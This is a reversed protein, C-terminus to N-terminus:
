RASYVRAFSNDFLVKYSINLNKEYLNFEECAKHVAFIEPLNDISMRLIDGNYHNVDFFCRYWYYYDDDTILPVHHNNQELYYMLEWYDEDDFITERPNKLYSGIASYLPFEVVTNQILGKELFINELPTFTFTLLFLLFACYAYIWSYSEQLLIDVSDSIVLWVLAWLIFYFKYYYYPSLIDLLCLICSIIIFGFYVTLLFLNLQFEKKKMYYSGIYFILPLFYVYDRYFEKHIGGDHALFKIFISFDRFYLYLFGLVLIGGVICSLSLLTFVKKNFKFTLITNSSIKLYCLLYLALAYPVFLVYCICLCYIIGLFLILFNKRKTPYDQYLYLMYIGFLFLTVGMGWYVFGGLLYEYIPWGVFYLIVLVPSIYHFLKSRKKYSILIYFIMGCLFHSITEAVIMSKYSNIGSFIPSLLQIIISNNLSSFYMTNLKGTRIISVAFEFHHAIDTNFYSLKIDTSFVRLFVVLMFILLIIFNAIDFKDLHYLQYEKHKIYYIFLIITIINCLLSVTKLNIPISFLAFPIVGIAIMCLQAIYCLIISNSFSLSIDLKKITFLLIFCLLFSIVFYISMIM